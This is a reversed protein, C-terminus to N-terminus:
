ADNEDVEIEDPMSEVFTNMMNNPADSLSQIREKVKRRYMVHSIFIIFLGTILFLIKRWSEPFGLHPLVAVWLGTFLLTREKKM